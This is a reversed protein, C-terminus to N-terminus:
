FNGLHRVGTHWSILKGDLIVHETLRISEGYKICITKQANFTFLVGGQKVGNKLRFYTSHCSNWIVRAEQRVYGDM